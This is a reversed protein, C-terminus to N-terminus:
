YFHFVLQKFELAALWCVCVHGRLRAAETYIMKWVFEENAPTRSCFMDVLSASIALIEPLCKHRGTMRCELALEDDVRCPPQIFPPLSDGELMMKPFAKLQGLAVSTLVCGRLRGRRRLTGMDAEKEQLPVVRFDKSPCASPGSCSSTPHITMTNERAPQEADAELLNFSDLEPFAGPAEVGFSKPTALSMYPTRGLDEWAFPSSGSFEMLSGDVGDRSLPIEVDNIVVPQTSSPLPSTPTSTSPQRHHSYPLVRDADRGDYICRLRKKACQSCPTGLNCRLKSARCRACSKKKSLPM